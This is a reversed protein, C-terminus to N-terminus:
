VMCETINLSLHIELGRYDWSQLSFQFTYWKPRWLIRKDVSLLKLFRQDNYKSRLTQESNEATNEYSEDIGINLRTPNACASIYGPHSSDLTPELILRRTRMHSFSSTNRDSVATLDTLFIQTSSSQFCHSTKLIFANNSFLFSPSLITLCM